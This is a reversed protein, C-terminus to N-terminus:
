ETATGRLMNWVHSGVASLRAGLMGTVAGLLQQNGIWRQQSEGVKGLLSAAFSAEEVPPSPAAARISVDPESAVTRADPPVAAATTPAAAARLTTVPSTVIALQM